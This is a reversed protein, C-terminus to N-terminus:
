ANLKIPLERVRKGTAAFIANVLAPAAPPVGPEGIGSPAQDSEIIHVEVPPAEHIKLLQYDHFNSQVVRGKDLTIESHLAFSLAFVVAGEMQAKITDPNVTKGCDVAVHVKKVKVEGADSVEVEVVQAVYSMFSFHCAIGMGSGKPLKKGWGAKEAVVKLVNKLRGTTNVMEGHRDRPSREITRSEGLLELRLALPDKGLKHALEDMFVNVGFAHFINCVSRFWGIRLHPLAAGNEIRIHDFRYPMNLFGQGLESPSAHDVNPQFTSSISPFASRALWASPKGDKDIAAKFHTSSVAHYYAHRIDDERRWVVKVPKGVQRSLWAAEVVFDPKSKRGFGGGLMAVHVTVNEPSIQLLRAVMGRATQPTQSSAWIEVKGDRFDAVASPPEMTAHALHPVYYTAELTEGAQEMATDVQGEEYAVHGPSKASQILSERYSASDVTDHEGAGWTINLSNLAQEAAWYHDGIVAVGGLPTFAYPAQALPMEVIEVGDVTKPEFGQLAAGLVPPRAIIATKMGPLSVDIGYVSKGQTIAAVDLGTRPKGLLRFHADKKLVPKEPVPLAAAELALAGYSLKTKGDAHIVHGNEARCQDASVQWRAAGASVLMDRAAAGARRLPGYFDRVSKSGDTNQEGYKPDGDAQALTVTDLSVELEEALVMALATRIGQGMESRHVTLTVKNDPTITVYVNPAFETKEGTFAARTKAALSPSGGAVLALGSGIGLSKIFNRRDM